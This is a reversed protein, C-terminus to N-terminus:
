DWLPPIEKSICALIDDESFMGSSTDVFECLYEQRFWREGMTKREEQLFAKSFRPNETAPVSVRFWLPDENVWTDHFFGSKGRPTSLLWLRGGERGAMALMPRVTLYTDGSVEAAEDILVLAAKSFGRVKARVGPLGVIRSKNPLRLSIKNHGDGRGSIGLMGAFDKVKELFEGSQRETPCVVLVNSRPHFYAWHLAKIAIVTSKGWQRSCNLMGRRIGPNLVAAQQADPEFELRERAFRVADLAYISKLSV